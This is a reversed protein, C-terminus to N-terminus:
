MKHNFSNRYLFLFKPSLIVCVPADDFAMECLNEASGRLSSRVAGLLTKVKARVTREESLTAASLTAADRCKQKFKLV